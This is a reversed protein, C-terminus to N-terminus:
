NRIEAFSTVINPFTDQESHVASIRKAPYQVTASPITRNMFYYKIRLSLGTFPCATVFLKEIFSM